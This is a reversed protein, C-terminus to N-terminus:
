GLNKALVRRIADTLRYANIPKIILESIGTDRAAREITESIFGSTLIVPISIGAERLAKAIELGTIQPMAYDTIVIDFALPHKKLVRLATVGDTFATVSYGINSLISQIVTAIAKEDDIVAIKETGPKLLPVIQSGGAVEVDSVPFFIDFRTGKGVTSRATIIGGIKKVIGHVVSLGLGTGEGQTKTTFFPLFIQDLVEPAIGAGTDSVGLRLHKGQKVDPHTKTFTEDLFVDDLALTITGRSEGIAHVANTFLNMVVQHIQTPEALIAADSTLDAEIHITAPISARLLKLAEKLVPKVSIPRLEVETQRSFTLIQNVLERARESARIIERMYYETEPDNGEAMLSLEAYGFIGSLINNFDHAIGGALTGIAELKQAQQLRKESMLESSIDRGIELYGGIAGSADRLPVFMVDLTVTGNDDRKLQMRGSWPIGSELAEWIEEASINGAGSLDPETGILREPKSGAIKGFAPNAFVIRRDVGIQLIMETSHQTVQNVMEMVEQVPTSIRNTYINITAVIVLCFVAGCVVILSLVKTVPSMVEYQDQSFVVTWGTLAVDTLAVIKESGKFRYSTAGTARAAVLKKIEETGPLDLLRLKFNYDKNPHMLVLGDSDILFTFGTSGVSGHALNNVVFDSNFPIGVVGYFAEKERIPACVVIIAENLTAIGKSLLPGGVNAQGQKAKLFYDRDSLDLGIQQHSHANARTIGNQDLLFITFYDSGIGQYVSELEKQAATYDGNRSAAIVDPDAAISRALEIKQTLLAGIHDAVDEVNHVARDATIAVLSESLQLYVILGICFFPILVATIGGVIMRTKLTKSNIM